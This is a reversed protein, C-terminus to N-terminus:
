IGDVAVVIQKIMTDATKAYDKEYKEVLEERTPTKGKAQADWLVSLTAQPPLPLGVANFFNALTAIVSQAGDSDGTIVIGAAKKELGSPKGKMVQDHLEDLREVVRQMLSSLNNWWIPTAFVLVDAALIQTLVDPWEDGEGMDSYTGPPINLEALRVINVEIGSSRMTEALFEALTLTNSLGEKKLTAVLILAKM